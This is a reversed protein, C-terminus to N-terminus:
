IKSMDPADTSSCWAPKGTLENQCTRKERFFSGSRVSGTHLVQAPKCFRERDVFDRDMPGRDAADTKNQKEWFRSREASSVIAQGDQEWRGLAPNSHKGLSCKSGSSSWASLAKAQKM